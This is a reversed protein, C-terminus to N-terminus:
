EAVVADAMFGCYVDRAKKAAAAARGIEAQGASKATALQLALEAIEAGQRLLAGKAVFANVVQEFSYTIHEKNLFASLKETADLGSPLEFTDETLRTGDQVPLSEPPPCLNEAQALGTAALLVAITLSCRM